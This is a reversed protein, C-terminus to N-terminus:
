KLLGEERYRINRELNRLTGRKQYNCYNEPIEFIGNSALPKFCRGCIFKIECDSCNERITKQFKRLLDVMKPFNLGNEVDGIAMTANMKECAHFQGQADIFLRSDFFCTQALTSFTRQELFDTATTIQNDLFEELPALSDGARKKDAIRDHARDFDSYKKEVDIPYRQYYDTGYATVNNFRMGKEQVLENTQAFEMLNELPLDFSHVASFAVKKKFYDPRLDSIKKLNDLVTSHTGSGNAFVRKADHNDQDGDLSVSLSIENDALFDIISDDLVTLNSTMNYYLDWGIFTKKTYEVMQRILKLNLLPEGGYFGFNFKKESRDKIQSYIYDIGKAATEFTMEQPALSRYHQYNDSFVCYKCRLNCNETVEFITLPLDQFKRRLLEETIEIDTVTMRQNHENALFLDKTEANIIRNYDCLYLYKGGCLEITKTM